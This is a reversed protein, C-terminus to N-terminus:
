YYNFQVEFKDSLNISIKVLDLSNKNKQIDLISNLIDGDFKVKIM